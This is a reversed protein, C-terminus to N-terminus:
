LRSVLFADATEIKQCLTALHEDIGRLTELVIPTKNSGLLRQLSNRLNPDKLKEDWLPQNPKEFSCLQSLDAESVSGQLLHQVCDVYIVRETKFEQYVKDWGQGSVALKYAELFNVVVPWINLALGVAEVGSM